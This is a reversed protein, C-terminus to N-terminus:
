VEMFIFNSFVTSCTVLWWSYDIILYLLSYFINTVMMMIIMMMVRMKLMMMNYTNDLYLEVCFRSTRSQTKVLNNSYDADNDDDDNDIDKYDDYWPYYSWTNAM